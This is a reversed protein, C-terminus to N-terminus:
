VTNTLVVVVDVSMLVFSGRDLFWECFIITGPILSLDTSVRRGASTFLCLAFEFMYKYTIAIVFSAIAIHTRLLLFM